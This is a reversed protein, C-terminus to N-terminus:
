AGSPQDGAEPPAEVQEREQGEERCNEGLAEATTEVIDKGSVFLHRQEQGTQASSRKQDTAGFCQLRRRSCGRICRSFFFRTNHSPKTGLLPLVEQTAKIGMRFSFKFSKSQEEVLINKLDETQHTRANGGSRAQWNYRKKTNKVM